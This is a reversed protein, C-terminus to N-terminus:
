CFFRTVTWIINQLNADLNTFHGLSIEIEVHGPQHTKQKTNWYGLRSERRNLFALVSIYWYFSYAFQLGAHTNCHLCIVQSWINIYIPCWLKLYSFKQLPGSCFVKIVLLIWSSWSNKLRIFSVRRWIIVAWGHFLHLYRYTITYTIFM